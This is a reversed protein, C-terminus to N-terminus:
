TPSLLLVLRPMGAGADFARQFDAFAHSGSLSVLPPQGHPARGPSSLYAAALLLVAALALAISAKKKM